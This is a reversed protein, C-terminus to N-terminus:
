ELPPEVREHEADPLVIKELPRERVDTRIGVRRLWLGAHICAVVVAREEPAELEPALEPLVEVLVCELASDHRRLIEARHGM